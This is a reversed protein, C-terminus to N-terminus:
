ALLQGAAPLFTFLVGRGGIGNPPKDWADLDVIQVVWAASTNKTKDVYWHGDTDITLGFSAGIDTQATVQAPGVQGYFVNDPIALVIGSKGDNFYPRSLNAANPMNPVTGFKIGGGAFPAKTPALITGLPVGLTALNQGFDASIGAIGAAVTTGNWATVGGGTLSVPTGMLFTQAAAEDLREMRPQNGSVTGRSAILATAM